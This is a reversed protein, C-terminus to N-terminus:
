VFSPGIFLPTRYMRQAFVPLNVATFPNFGDSALAHILLFGVIHVVEEEEDHGDDDEEHLASEREHFSPCDLSHSKWEYVYYQTNLLNKFILDLFVTFIKILFQNSTQM